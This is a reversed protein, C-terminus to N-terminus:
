ENRQAVDFDHNDQWFEVSKQSVIRRALGSVPTRQEKGELMKDM